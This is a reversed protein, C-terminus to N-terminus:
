EIEYKLCFNELALHEFGIRYTYGNFEKMADEIPGTKKGREEKYDIRENIKM